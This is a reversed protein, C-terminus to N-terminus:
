LAEALERMAEERCRIHVVVLGAAGYDATESQEEDTPLECEACLPSEQCACNSGFEGDYAGCNPCRETDFDGVCTACCCSTPHM